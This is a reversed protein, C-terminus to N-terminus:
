VAHTGGDVELECLGHESPARKLRALEDLVRSREELLAALQEDCRAIPAPYDRVQACLDTFKQELLLRHKDARVM